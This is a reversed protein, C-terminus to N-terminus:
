RVLGNLGTPSAASTSSTRPVHAVGEAPPEDAGACDERQKDDQDERAHEVRDAIQAIGAPLLAVGLLDNGGRAGHLGEDQVELRARAAIQDGVLLWEEPGPRAVDVAERRLGRREGSQHCFRLLPREGAGDDVTDPGVDTIVRLREDRSCAAVRGGRRGDDAGALALAADVRM